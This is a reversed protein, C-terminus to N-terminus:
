NYSSGQTIEGGMSEIPRNSDERIAFGPSAIVKWGSKSLRKLGKM